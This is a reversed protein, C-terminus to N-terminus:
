EEEVVHVQNRKLVVERDLFQIKFFVDGHEFSMGIIKGKKGVLNSDAIIVEVTDGMQALKKVTM